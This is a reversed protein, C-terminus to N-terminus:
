GHEVWARVDFNPCTRGSDHDCHGSWKLDPYKENLEDKLKSLAKWQAETFNSINRNGKAKGGVLCIGITSKNHGLVHAGARSIDRGLEITGDRLIVYHYGIDKWGNENVHVNRIWEADIDMDPTTYSCHVVAETIERMKENRGFLIKLCNLM